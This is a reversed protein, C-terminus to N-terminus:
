KYLSINGAYLLKQATVLNLKIALCAITLLIVMVVNNGFFVKIAKVGYALGFYFNWLMSTNCNRLM